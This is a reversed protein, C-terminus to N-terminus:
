GISVGNSETRSAPMDREVPPASDEMGAFAEVIYRPRRKVEQYTKGLYEGVVGICLIQIGGIFYLPLVTSAWGPIAQDSFLRVWLVWASITVTFGFVAFGLFTIVRLPVVSFSTIGELAFAIMKRLPYKSVGAFREKREYQVIDARFGLLPVLGRLFLNVEEYRRLAELARRSLLRFDAHNYVSDAGFWAMLRYFSEATFRKFWTDQARKARVGYVVDAGNLHCDVMRVIANVDDQLDADISVIADGTSSMLGAVLANQHGRNRSLKLGRIRRDADALARIMMWTRDKSGDDVFIIESGVAIRQTAQLGDLLELLRMCTEQLVEEENYCPVVISLRM